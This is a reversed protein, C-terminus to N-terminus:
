VRVSVWHLILIVAFASFLGGVIAGALASDLLRFTDNDKV